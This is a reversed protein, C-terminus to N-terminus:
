GLAEAPIREIGLQRQLALTDFEVWVEAIRGDQVRFLSIGSWTVRQDTAPVGLYEGRHTGTFTFRVAVLDAEAIVTDLCSELDPFAMRFNSLTYRFGAAGYVPGPTFPQHLVFDDALLEDAATPNRMSLIDDFFRRALAKNEALTM